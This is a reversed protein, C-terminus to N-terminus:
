SITTRLEPANESAEGGAEFINGSSGFVTRQEWNNDAGTTGNLPPSFTSGDALTTNGGAGSTADVYTIIPNAPAPDAPVPQTFLGVNAASYSTYSAYSGRFWIVCREGGNRRPVYPRLNDASSNTTIQAWSFTLGGDVTIGR